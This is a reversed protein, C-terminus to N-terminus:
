SVALRCEEDGPLPDCGIDHACRALAALFAENAIGDAPGKYRGREILGCQYRRVWEPGGLLMVLRYDALAAQPNRLAQKLHARTDLSSPQGPRLALSREVDAMGQELRGAKLHAWARNNLVSAARPNIALAADYDAIAAGLDGKRRHALGRAALADARQMPQTAPNEIVATCAEIRRPSLVNLCDSLDGSQAGAAQVGALLAAITLGATRRRM